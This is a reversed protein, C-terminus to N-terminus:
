PGFRSIDGKSNIGNSIDYQTGDHAVLRDPGLSWIEWLINQKSKSANQFHIQIHSGVFAQNKYVQDYGHLYMYPRKSTDTESAPLVEPPFPDLPLTGLYPVPTTLRIPLYILAGGSLATVYDRPNKYYPYKDHDVHYQELAKACADMDAYVRTIQARMRANLFNPVAIAALVGIIAVVILLEIL